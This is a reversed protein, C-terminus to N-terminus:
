PEFNLPNVPETCAISTISALPNRVLHLVTRFRDGVLLEWPRTYFPLPVSNNPHQIHDFENFAHVWSVRGHQGVEDYDDAVDLKLARLLNVTAVTGSRPTATILLPLVFTNHTVETKCCPSYM